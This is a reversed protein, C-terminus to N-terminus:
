RKLDNALMQQKSVKEAAAMFDRVRASLVDGPMNEAQEKGELIQRLTDCLRANPRRWNDVIDGDLLVYPSRTGLCAMVSTILHVFM